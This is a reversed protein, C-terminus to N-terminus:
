LFRGKIMFTYCVEVKHIKRNRPLKCACSKPEIDWKKKSRNTPLYTSPINQDECSYGGKWSLLCFWTPIFLILNKGFKYQPNQSFAGLIKITTSCTKVEFGIIITCYWVTRHYALRPLTQFRSFATNYLVELSKLSFWGLCRFLFKRFVKQLCKLHFKYVVKM